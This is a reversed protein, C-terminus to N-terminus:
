RKACTSRLLRKKPSLFSGLQDLVEEWARRHWERAEAWEDGDGWGGHELTLRTAGEEERFGVEVYTQPDPENMLERFQDPGKWNFGLRDMSKFETITCGKTSMHDHDKPDFYLEYAGGPHPEIKAEPAFFKTIRESETWARWVERPHANLKVRFKLPEM